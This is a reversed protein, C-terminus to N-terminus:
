SRRDQGDWISRAELVSVRVDLGDVYGNIKDLKKSNGGVTKEIYTLRTRLVLWAASGSGGAAVVGAVIATVIMSEM